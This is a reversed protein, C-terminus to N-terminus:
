TQPSANHQSQYKMAYAQDMVYHGPNGAYGPANHKVIKAMSHTVALAGKKGASLRLKTRVGSTPVMYM